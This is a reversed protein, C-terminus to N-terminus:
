LASRDDLGYKSCLAAYDDPSDIDELVGDCGTEIIIGGKDDLVRKLSEGGALGFIAPIYSSPFYVPHGPKGSRGAVLALDGGMAEELSGFAAESVFPMDAHHLFFGHCGAPLSEIGRIASGVRGAEWEPNFVPLIGDLGELAKEVAERGNGTVVILPSCRELAIRTTRRVMPEGAVPLLLKHSGM